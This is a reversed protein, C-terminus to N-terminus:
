RALERGYAVRYAHAYTHRYGAHYGSRYGATQGADLGARAGAQIGALAGNQEASALSPGGSQGALFGGAGAALCSLVIALSYLLPRWM